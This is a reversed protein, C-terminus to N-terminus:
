EKVNKKYRKEYEKMIEDQQKQFVKQIKELYLEDFRNNRQIKAERYKQNYEETGRTNEKVKKEIIEQVQKKLQLDKMDQKQISKELDV